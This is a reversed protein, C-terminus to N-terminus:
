HAVERLYFLPRYRFTSMTQRMYKIGRMLTWRILSNCSSTVDNQPRGLSRAQGITAM